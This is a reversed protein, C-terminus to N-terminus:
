EYAAKRIIPTELIEFLHDTKNMSGNVLNSLIVVTIDDTLNRMYFNRFGHWWGTHYVIQKHEGSFTRWGYGYSFYIHEISVQPKYALALTEKKLLIGKKLALDFLFMDDLTSYIGKDGCTGDLYNPSVSFRWSRDHGIAVNNPFKRNEYTTYVQTNYMGAPQFINKRMFTSYSMRSVKEIIAGLLMYNTNNYHFIKGEPAYRSPKYKIMLDIAAANNMPHKKNRWVRESFYVYNTLGSQHTLLYHITINKYPFKPYFEDVTQNLKLKGREYLMLIAVATLPKSVSALQFPTNVNLPIKRMYDAWGFSKKYIIKGKKAILVNGNFGYKTQLDNFFLDIKKDANQPSYALYQTRDFPEEQKSQIDKGCSYLLLFFYSFLCLILRPRHFFCSSFINSSTFNKTPTIQMIKNINDKYIVNM